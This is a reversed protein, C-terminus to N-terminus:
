CVGQWQRVDHEAAAVRPSREHTAEDGADDHGVEHRGRPRGTHLREQTRGADGVRQSAGQWRDHRRGLRRLSTPPQHGQGTGPHQRLRDIQGAKGAAPRSAAALVAVRPGAVPDLQLDDTAVALARTPSSFRAARTRRDPRAVLPEGAERPRVRAAGCGGAEVSPSVGPPTGGGPTPSTQTPLWARGHEPEAGSTSRHRGMLRAIKAKPTREEKLRYLFEREEFTLHKAM